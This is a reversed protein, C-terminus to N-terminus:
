KKYKKYKKVFIKGRWFLIGLVALCGMFVSCLIYDFGERIKLQVVRSSVESGHHLIIEAEFKDDTIEVSNLFGIVTATRWAGLEVVPTVFGVDELGLIKVEAYLDNMNSNWLSEVEIEFKDIKNKGFERTYSLIRVMPEGVRFPNKLYATREDYEVIAIVFYDGASYSSNDLTISFRKSEMGSIEISEIKVIEIKEHDKYVEIKPEVVVSGNGKSFIDLNVNVNEGVNINPVSLGLEIYEEPYPVKVEIIGVVEGAIIRIQNIGSSDVKSPLKLSAVVKERGSIKKKDLSIYESFGGEVSLAVRSGGDIVFNFNFDGEYNPEFNVEYSRPNVGSIAFVGGCVFICIIYFM